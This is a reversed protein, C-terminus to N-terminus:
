PHRRAPPGRDELVPPHPTIGGKPLRTLVDTSNPGGSVGPTAPQFNAGPKPAVTPPNTLVKAVQCCVFRQYLRPSEFVREVAGPDSSAAGFARAANAVPPKSSDWLGDISAVVVAGAPSIAQFVVGLQQPAYPGCHTVTGAIIVDARHMRALAVVLREDFCGGDRVQLGLCDPADPPAPVVEFRGLQQMEAVLAEKVEDGVRPFATENVVPVVLVRNVM